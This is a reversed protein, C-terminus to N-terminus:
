CFHGDFCREIWGPGPRRRCWKWARAWRHRRATRSDTQRGPVPGAGGGAGPRDPLSAGPEKELCKLCITELDRPISPNLLRPPVPETEIVQKLLTTLTDAQFPPQRTLLHYLLAGLSYVDSAPGVDQARGGAQEPSMFNPSGLVQGTLTLHPNLDSTQPRSGSPWASLRHHPTPGDCGDPHELAQPRSAPHRAPPRLPDGRCHDEPLGAARRGALPQDRVLEASRRGKSTLGDLLLAPGEHEGVEHIAVINPHQLGAAASAEARFRRSRTRAASRASAAAAQGGGYPGPQSAAGSLGCGHRGRRDEGAVRLQWVASGQGRAESWQGSSWQGSVAQRPGSVGANQEQGSGSPKRWRILAESKARQGRGESSRGRSKQGGNVLSQRRGAPGLLCNPCLGEPAHGPLEQGCYGCVRPAKM